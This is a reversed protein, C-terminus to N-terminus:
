PAKVGRGMKGGTRVVMCRCCLQVIVNMASQMPLLSLLM